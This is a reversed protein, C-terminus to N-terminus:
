KQVAPKLETRAANLYVETSGDATYLSCNSVVGTEPSFECKIQYKDNPRLLRKYANLKANNDPLVYNFAVGNNLSETNQGNMLIDNILAVVETGSRVGEYNTFKSNFAQVQASDLQTGSKEVNAKGATYVLMGLAVLLIAVLIAGAILLAKSANEM